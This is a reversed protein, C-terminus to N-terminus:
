TMEVGNLSNRSDKFESFSLSFSKSSESFSLNSVSENISKLIDKGTTVAKKMRDISYFGIYMYVWFVLVGILGGTNGYVDVDAIVDFM